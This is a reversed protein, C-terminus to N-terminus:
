LEKRFQVAKCQHEEKGTGLIQKGARRHQQGTGAFFIEAAKIATTVWSTVQKEKAVLVAWDTASTKPKIYPIVLKTAIVTLAALVGLIIWTIDNM